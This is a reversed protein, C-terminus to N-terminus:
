RSKKEFSIEFPLIRNGGTDENSHMRAEIEYPNNLYTEQYMTLINDRAVKYGGGCVVSLFVPISIKPDPILFSGIAGAMTIQMVKKSIQKTRAIRKDQALQEERSLLKPAKQMQIIHQREHRWIYAVTQQIASLKAEELLDKFEGKRSLHRVIHPINIFCDVNGRGYPIVSGLAKSNPPDSTLFLLKSIQEEVNQPHSGQALAESAYNNKLTQQSSKFVVLTNKDLEVIEELTTLSFNELDKQNGDEAM